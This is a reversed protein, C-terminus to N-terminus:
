SSREWQARGGTTQSLPVSTRKEQFCHLTTLEFTLTDAIHLRHAPSNPFFLWACPPAKLVTFKAKGNLTLDVVWLGGMGSPPFSLLFANIPKVEINHSISMETHIRRLSEPWRSRFGPNGPFIHPPGAERQTLCSMCSCVCHTLQLKVKKHGAVLSLCDLSHTHCLNNNM